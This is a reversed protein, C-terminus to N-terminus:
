YFRRRRRRYRDRRVCFENCTLLEIINRMICDPCERGQERDQPPRGHAATEDATGAAEIGAYVNRAVRRLEEKDPYEMFMPSGEYELKDCEEEVARSVSKISEPYMEKMYEIDRMMTDTGDDMNLLIGSMGMSYESNRNVSREGLSYAGGDKILGRLNVDYPSYPIYRFEKSM